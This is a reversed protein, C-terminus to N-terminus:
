CHFRQTQTKNKSRSKRQMWRNGSGNVFSKSEVPIIKKFQKETYILNLKKAGTYDESDSTSDEQPPQCSTFMSLGTHSVPLGVLDFMDHLMPKKVAADV